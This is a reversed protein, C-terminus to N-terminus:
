LERSTRNIIKKFIGLNKLGAAIREDDPIWIINNPSKLFEKFLPYFTDHLKIDYSGGVEIYTQKEKPLGNLLNIVEKYSDEPVRSKLRYTLPSTSVLRIPPGTIDEDTELRGIKFRSLKEHFIPQRIIYFAINFFVNLIENHISNFNCIGEMAALGREISDSIFRFRTITGDSVIQEDWLHPCTQNYNRYFEPQKFINVFEDFYRFLLSDNKQFSYTVGFFRCSSAFKELKYAHINSFAESDYTTKDGTKVEVTINSEIRLDFTFELHDQAVSCLRFLILFILSYIRKM